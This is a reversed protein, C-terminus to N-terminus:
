RNICNFSIEKDVLVKRIAHKLPLGRKYWRLASCCDKEDNLHAKVTDIVGGDNAKISNLLKAKGTSSWKDRGGTKLSIYDKFRTKGSMSFQLISSACTTHVEYKEAYARVSLCDIDSDLEVPITIIRAMAGGIGLPNDPRDKKEYEDVTEYFARGAAKEKLYGEDDSANDDFLSCLALRDCAENLPNGSHGAVWQMSVHKGKAAKELRIWLDKNKRQSWIGYFCNILYKSDSCLKVTVSAPLQELAIIAAIMEMRNNTTSRYSQTLSLEEGTSSNVIICAGAGPGGPNKACSGDTYVIYDPTKENDKEKKKKSM